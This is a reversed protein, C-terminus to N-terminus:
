GGTAKLTAADWVIYGWRRMKNPVVWGYLNSYTEKWMITWAKSPADPSGDGRFPLAVRDGQMRDRATPNEDNRRSQHYEGLVGSDAEILIYSRDM